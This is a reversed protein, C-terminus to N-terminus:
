RDSPRRKSREVARVLTLVVLSLFVVLTAVSIEGLGVAVGVAAVLWLTAATTLGYVTGKEHLISGAGIFGIGVIVAALVRMPDATAGIEARSALRIAVVGFTAAGLCVLMHTRLGAPKERSEREYGILAGCVLAVLLRIAVELWEKATLDM